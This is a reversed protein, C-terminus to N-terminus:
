PSPIPRIVIKTAYGPLTILRGRDTLDEAVLVVEGENKITRVGTSATLRLSPSLGNRAATEPWAILQLLALPLEPPMSNSRIIGTRSFRDGEQTCSILTAMTAPDIITLTTKSTTNLVHSLYRHSKDERQVVVEDWSEMPIASDPPQVRYFGGPLDAIGSTACGAMLM